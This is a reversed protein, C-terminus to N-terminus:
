LEPPSIRATNRLKFKLVILLIMPILTLITMANGTTKGAGAESRGEYREDYPFLWADGIIVGVASLAFASSMLAMCVQVSGFKDLPTPVPVASASARSFRLAALVASCAAVTCLIISFSIVAVSFLGVSYAGTCVTDGNGCAQAWTRTGYFLSKSLGSPCGEGLYGYYILGLRM